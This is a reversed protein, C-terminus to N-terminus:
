GSGGSKSVQWDGEDTAVTFTRSRRPVSEISAQQCDAVKTFGRGNRTWAVARGEDTVIVRTKSWSGGPTKLRAPFIDHM